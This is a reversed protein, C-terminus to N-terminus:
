LNDIIIVDLLDDRLISLVDLWISAVAYQNTPDAIATQISKADNPTSALILTHM